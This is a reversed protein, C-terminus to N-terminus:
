RIHILTSTYQGSILIGGCGQCQWFEDSTLDYCKLGATDGSDRARPSIPCDSLFELDLLRPPFPVHVSFFMHYASRAAIEWYAAM